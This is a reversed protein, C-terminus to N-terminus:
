VLRGARGSIVDSIASMAEGRSWQNLGTQGSSKM